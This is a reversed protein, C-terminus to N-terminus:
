VCIPAQGFTTYIAEDSWTQQADPTIHKAQEKFFGHQNLAVILDSRATVVPATMATNEITKLQRLGNLPVLEATTDQDVDATAIIEDAFDTHAYNLPNNAPTYIFADSYTATFGMCVNKIIRTMEPVKAVPQGWHAAPVNSLTEVFTWGKPGIPKPQPTPTDNPQYSINVTLTSNLTGSIAMPRVYVATNLQGKASPQMVLTSDSTNNNTLMMTTIPIVSNMGLSFHHSDVLWPTQNQVAQTTQSPLTYLGKQCHLTLPQLEGKNNHIVQSAFQDWSLPQPTTTHSGFSVTFSVCWLHVHATGSMPPGSLNVTASLDLTITKHIFLLHLYYSVGMSVGIDGTYHLPAWQMLFDAMTTFWAKLKGSAFYLGFNGGGMACSPTLAFYADGKMTIQDSITWNFTLRPVKPYYPHASLPFKPHYGGLTVVFDGAHKSPEFWKYVAFAGQLHCAPDIVFSDPTLAAQWAMVGRQPQIFAEYQMVAKVYPHNGSFPLVFRSEGLLDIEFSKGWQVVVLAQSQIFEFSTFNIGAALWKEGDAPIIGGSSSPSSAPTNLEQLIQQLDPQQTPSEQSIKVLPFQSVQSPSPLKLRQNYGFGGALGTLLLFPPYGGLEAAVHAFIFLSKEKTARMETYEGIASLMFNGAGCSFAGTYSIQQATSQNIFEGSLAIDGLNLSLGFGSLRASIDSPHNLNMTLGLKSLDLTLPGLEIDSDLLLSLEPLKCEMGLRQVTIPGIKKAVNLWIAHAAQRIAANLPSASPASPVKSTSPVNSAMLTSMQKLALQKSESQKGGSSPSNHHLSDIFLTEAKGLINLEVAFNLGQNLGAPKLAATDSLPWNFPVSIAELKAKTLPASLYVLGAQQLPLPVTGLLPLDFSVQNATLNLGLLLLHSKSHGSKSLPSQWYLQGTASPLFGASGAAITFALSLTKQNSTVKFSSQTLNVTFTDEITLSGTFKVEDFNNNFVAQLHANNLTLKPFSQQPLGFFPLQAFEWHSVDVDILWESNGLSTTYDCRFNLSPLDIDPNPAENDSTDVVIKAAFGASFTSNPKGQYGIKLMIDSVSWSKGLLQWSWSDSLGAYFDYCKQRPNLQFSMTNITIDSLKKQDIEKSSSSSPAAIGKQTVATLISKVDPLSTKEEDQDYKEETHESAVTSQNSSNFWQGRVIFASLDAEFQFQWKNYLTWSFDLSSRYIRPTDHYQFQFGIGISFDTLAKSFFTQLTTLYTSFDPVNNSETTLEKYAGTLVGTIDQASLNELTLHVAGFGKPTLTGSVEVDAQSPLWKYHKYSFKASFSLSQMVNFTPAVQANLSHIRANADISLSVDTIALGGLSLSQILYGGVSWQWQLQSTGLPMSSAFWDIAPLYLGIQIDNKQPTLTINNNLTKKLTKKLFTMLSSSKDFYGMKQAVDILNLKINSPNSLLSLHFGYPFQKKYDGKLLFSNSSDQTLNFDATLLFDTSTISAKDSTGSTTLNGFRLNSVGFHHFYNSLTSSDLLVHNVLTLKNDPLSKIFKALQPNTANTLTLTKNNSTSLLSSSFQSKIKPKLFFFNDRSVVPRQLPGTKQYLTYYVKLSGDNQIDYNINTLTDDKYGIDISYVLSASSSTGYDNKDVSFAEFSNVMSTWASLQSPFGALNGWRKKADKVDEKSYLLKNAKNVVKEIDTPDTEKGKNDMNYFYSPYCMANLTTIYPSSLKNDETEPSNSQNKQPDSNRGTPFKEQKLLSHFRGIVLPDPHVHSAGASIIGFVPKTIELLKPPTSNSSGHHSLQFYPIRREKKLTASKRVYIQPLVQQKIWDAIKEEHGSDIDGGLYHIIQGKEDKLVMVYSRKNIITVSNGTALPVSVTDPTGAELYAENMGIIQLNPQGTIVTSGWFIEQDILGTLDELKTDLKVPVGAAQLIEVLLESNTEEKNVGYNKPHQTYDFLKEVLLDLLNALEGFRSSPIGRLIPDKFEEQDYKKAAHYLCEIVNGGADTMWFILGRYGSGGAGLSLHITSPKKKTMAKFNKVADIFVEEIFVGDLNKMVEFEFKYSGNFDPYKFLLAAPTGPVIHQLRGQLELQSVAYTYRMYVNNIIPWESRTSKQSPEKATQRPGIDYLRLPVIPVRAGLPSAFPIALLSKAEANNNLAGEFLEIIGGVHDTDYHTVVIADLYYRPRQTGLLQNIRQYIYPIVRERAAGSTGGDILVARDLDPKGDLSRLCILTANGAGVNIHNIFIEWAM